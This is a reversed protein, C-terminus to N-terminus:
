PTLQVQKTLALTNGSPDSLFAMWLEMADTKHVVHPAAIFNVGRETLSQHADHIDSVAYYLISAQPPPADDANMEPLTLMLQVGQCDFFAMGPAEFLFTLGLTDRYFATADELHHVPIAIQALREINLNHASNNM